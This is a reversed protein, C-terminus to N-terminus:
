GHPWQRRDAFWARWCTRAKAPDSTVHCHTEKITRAVAHQMHAPM